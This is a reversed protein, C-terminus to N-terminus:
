GFRKHLLSVQITEQQERLIASETKLTLNKKQTGKHEM